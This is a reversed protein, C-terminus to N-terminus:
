QNQYNIIDQGAWIMLYFLGFIAIIFIVDQIVNKPDKKIYELCNKYIEKM